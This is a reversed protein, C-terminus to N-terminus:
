LGASKAKVRLCEGRGASFSAHSAALKKRMRSTVRAGWNILETAKVHCYFISTTAAAAADVNLPIAQAGCPLAM